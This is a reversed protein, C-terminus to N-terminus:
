KLKTSVMDYDDHVSKAMVKAYRQTQKINTHGLMRALNEIKVGNRLMFTAFTHRALHSHMRANIGAAVGVLKLGENYHQLAIKPVQWDYKELVKVVPPLLQSVYAVGTKIREGNNVWKGDVQKYESLDLCQTDSYSLGTYMQVIFLDRAKEFETGSKPCLDCIRQMEEDTLYEINEKNGRSFEGHLRSYPVQDLSKLIGIKYARHLLAKLNKHYNYITSTELADPLDHLWKDFALINEVTMDRWDMLKGFEKLRNLLTVFHKRRGESVQLNKTEKEAWFFFDCKKGNDDLSLLNQRMLSLNLEIGERICRNVEEDVRRKILQLRENLEQADFRDVVLGHQWHKRLCKVGTSVYRVVRDVTLRVEIAGEKGDPTRARHDFVLATTVM